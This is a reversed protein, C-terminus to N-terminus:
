RREGGSRLQVGRQSWVGRETVHEGLFLNRHGVAQLHQGGGKM